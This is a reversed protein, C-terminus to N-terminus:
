TAGAVEIDATTATPTVASAPASRAVAPSQQPTQDVQRARLPEDRGARIPAGARRPELRSQPETSFESQPKGDVSGGPTSEVSSKDDETRDISKARDTGADPEAADGHNADAGEAVNPDAPSAKGDNKAPFTVERDEDIRQLRDNTASHTAKGGVDRAAVEETTTRAAESAAGLLDSAAERPELPEVRLVPRTASPKGGIWKLIRNLM